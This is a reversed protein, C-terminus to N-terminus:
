KKPQFTSFSYKSALLRGEDGDLPKLSIGSTTHQDRLRPNEVKFYYVAGAEAIFYAAAVRSRGVLVGKQWSTCFLHHEGPDVSFYFHSNGHTAGM